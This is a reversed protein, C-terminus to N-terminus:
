KPKEEPSPTSKPPTPSGNTPAPLEGPPVAGSGLLAAAIAEKASAGNKIAQIIDGYMAALGLPIGVGPRTLFGIGAGAGLRGLAKGPNEKMVQGAIEAADDWYGPHTALGKAMGGFLENADRAATQGQINTAGTAAFVQDGAKGIGRFYSGAGDVVDGVFGTLRKGPSKTHGVPSLGSEAANVGFGSPAPPGYVGPVAPPAFPQGGDFPRIRPFPIGTAQGFPLPQYFGPDPNPGTIPISFGPDPNYPEPNPDPALWDQPPAEGLIAWM